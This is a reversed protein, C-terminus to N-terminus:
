TYHQDRLMEDLQEVSPQYASLDIGNSKGSQQQLAAQLKKESYRLNNNKLIQQLAGIVEKSEHKDAISDLTGYDVGKYGAVIFLYATLGLTLAEKYLLLADSYPTTQNYRNHLFVLTTDKHISSLCELPTQENRKFQSYMRKIVWDTIGVASTVSHIGGVLYNKRTINKVTNDIAAIPSDLVLVSVKKKDIDALQDFNHLITSSGLGVGMLIAKSNKDLQAKNMTDNFITTSVASEGLDEYPVAPRQVNTYRQSSPFIHHSNGLNKMGPFFIYTTTNLSVEAFEHPLEMAQLAASVCLLYLLFQSKIFM